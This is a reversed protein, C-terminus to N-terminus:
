GNTRRDNGERGNQVEQMDIIQEKTFETRHENVAVSGLMLEAFSKLAEEKKEIHQRLCYCEEGPTGNCFWEGDITVSTDVSDFIDDLREPTLDDLWVDEEYEAV